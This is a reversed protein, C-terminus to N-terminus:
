HEYRAGFKTATRNFMWFLSGKLGGGDSNTFLELNQVASADLQLYMDATTFKSLRSLHHFLKIFDQHLIFECVIGDVCVFTVGLGFDM